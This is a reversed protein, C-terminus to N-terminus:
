KYVWKLMAEASRGGTDVLECGGPVLKISSDQQRFVFIFAFLDYGWKNPPKAGNIDILFLPYAYALSGYTILNMGDGLVWAANHKNISDESYQNCGGSGYRSYKPVCGGTLANRNCFKSVKLNQAFQNFFDPCQTLISRTYDPTYYCDMSGGFDVLVTKQFTQQLIGYVKKFQAKRQAEQYNRVVAPITLAAVVGIIALTILVEALTFGNKGNTKAMKVGKCNNFLLELKSNNGIINFCKLEFTL